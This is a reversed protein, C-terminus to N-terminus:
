AQIFYLSLLILLIFRFGQNSKGIFDVGKGIFSITCENEVVSLISPTTKDTYFGDALKQVYCFSHEIQM